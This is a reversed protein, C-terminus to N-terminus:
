LLHKHRTRMGLRVATPYGVRVIYIVAEPRRTKLQSFANWSDHALEYDGSAVDLALFRGRNAPISELSARLEKQYFAEGREVIEAASTFSM